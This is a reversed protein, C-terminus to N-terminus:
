ATVAESYVWDDEAENTLVEPPASVGDAMLAEAWSVDEIADIDELLKNLADQVTSGEVKSDNPSQSAAPRSVVTGDRLLQISRDGPNVQLSMPSGPAVTIGGTFNLGLKGDPTVYFAGGLDLSVRGQSDLRLPFALDMITTAAQAGRRHRPDKEAMTYSRSSQNRRGGRIQQSGTKGFSNTRPDIPIPNPNGAM